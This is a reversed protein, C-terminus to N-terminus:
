PEEHIVYLTLLERKIDEMMQWQGDGFDRDCNICRWFTERPGVLFLKRKSLKM